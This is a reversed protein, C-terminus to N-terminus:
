RQRLAVLDAVFGYWTAPGSTAVSSTVKVLNRSAGSVLSRAMGPPAISAVALRRKDDSNM